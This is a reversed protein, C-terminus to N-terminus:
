FALGLSGDAKFEFGALDSKLGNGEINGFYYRGGGGVRITFPHWNWQYGVIASPGFLSGSVEYDGISVRSHAYELAPYVFAGAFRDRYFFHQAGLGFGWATNEIGLIEFSWYNVGLNASTKDAVAVGVDVNFMNFLLAIPNAVIAITSPPERSAEATSSEPPRKAPQEQTVSGDSSTQTNLSAEPAASSEAPTSDEPTEVAFAPKHMIIGLAGITVILRSQM